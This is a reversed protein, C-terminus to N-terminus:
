TVYTTDCATDTKSTNGVTKRQDTYYLTVPLAEKM